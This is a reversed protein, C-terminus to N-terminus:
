DALDILLLAQQGTYVLFSDLGVSRKEQIRM